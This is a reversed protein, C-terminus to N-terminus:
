GRTCVERIAFLFSLGYGVVHGVGRERLGSSLKSCCVGDKEKGSDGGGKNVYSGRWVCMNVIGVVVVMM